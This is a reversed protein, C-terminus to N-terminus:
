RNLVTTCDKSSFSSVNLAFLNQPTQYKLSNKNKKEESITLIIERGFLSAEM